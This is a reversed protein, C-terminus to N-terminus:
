MAKDFRPLISIKTSGAQIELSYMYYKTLGLMQITVDTHITTRKYECQKGTLYLCRNHVPNVKNSQASWDQQM